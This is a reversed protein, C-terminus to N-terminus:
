RHVVDSVRASCGDPVRCRNSTEHLRQRGDGVGGPDREADQKENQEEGGPRKGRKAAIDGLGEEGIGQGHDLFAPQQQGLVAKEEVDRMVM